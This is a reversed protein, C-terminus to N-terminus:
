ARSRPAVQSACFPRALAMSETGPRQRSAIWMDNFWGTFSHDAGYGPPNRTEALDIGPRRRWRHIQTTGPRAWPGRRLHAGVRAPDRGAARGVLWLGRAPSRRDMSQAPRASDRRHARRRCVIRTQKESRLAGRSRMRDAIRLSPSPRTLGTLLIADRVRVAAAPARVTEVLRACMIHPSRIRVRARPRRRGQVTGSSTAEGGLREHRM